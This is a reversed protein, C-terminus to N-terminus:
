ERDDERSEMVRKRASFAERLNDITEELDSTWDNETGLSAADGVCDGLMRAASLLGLDYEYLNELDDLIVGERDFWGAYGSPALRLEDETHELRASVRELSGIVRLNRLGGSRSLDNMVESLLGRCRAVEDAAKSRVAQDADRRTERDQYGAIGPIIRGIKELLGAAKSKTM